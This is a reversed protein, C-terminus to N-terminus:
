SCHTLRLTCKYFILLAFGNFKSFHLFRTRKYLSAVSILLTLHGDFMSVPECTKQLPTMCRLKLELLWTNYVTMLSRVMGKLCLLGSGLFPSASVWSDFRLSPRRLWALPVHKLSANFTSIFHFWVGSLCLYKLRGPALYRSISPESSVILTVVTFHRSTRKSCFFHWM